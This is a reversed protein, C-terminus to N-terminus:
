ASEVELGEDWLKKPDVEFGLGAMPFMRTIAYAPESTLRKRPNELIENRNTKVCRVVPHNASQTRKVVVATDGNALGVLSGPPYIGIAKVLLAALGADVSKDKDMFLQRLVTNPLAAARYARGTAMAGYRDAISLVQAARCIDNGQLAAPYGKGDITEHHQGVIALWRADSVDLAQLRRVGAAPHCRVQERQEPSPATAQLYLEDQLELMAINMSLAACIATRRQADDEGSERLLLEALIAGHVMRRTSYRGAHCMQISAIAADSDLSVGHQLHEALAQLRAPFDAPADELLLLELRSQVQVLLDIVSVRVAHHGGGGGGGAGASGSAAKGPAAEHFLGRQLLRVLQQPDDIVFGQRLLLKGQEDFTDFPLPIGVHIQGAHLRTDSM